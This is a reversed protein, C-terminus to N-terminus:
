PVVESWGATDGSEFDGLFVYNAPELYVVSQLSAASGCGSGDCGAGFAIVQLRDSLAVSLDYADDADDLPQSMEFFTTGGTTGWSGQGDTTGGASTDESYQSCTAIFGDYYLLTADQSDTEHTDVVTTASCPDSGALWAQTAAALGSPAPPSVPYPVEAGLYLNTDDNMLYFTVTGSGGGLGPPFVVPATGVLAGTWEGPSNVGDLFPTGRHHFTAAAALPPPAALVVLVVAALWAVVARHSLPPRM